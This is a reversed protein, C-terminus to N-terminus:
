LCAGPSTEAVGLAPQFKSAPAVAAESPALPLPEVAASLQASGAPGESRSSVEEQLRAAGGPLPVLGVPCRAAAELLVLRQAATRLPAPSLLVALATQKAAVAVGGSLQSAAEQLSAALIPSLEAGELRRAASTKPQQRRQVQRRAPLHTAAATLPPWESEELQDSDATADEGQLQSEREEASQLEEREQWPPSEDAGKDQTEHQRTAVCEITFSPPDRALKRLAL